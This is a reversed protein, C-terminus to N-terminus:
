AKFVCGVNHRELAGHLNTGAIDQHVGAEREDLYRQWIRASPALSRVSKERQSAAARPRRNIYTQVAARKADGLRRKTHNVFGGDLQM